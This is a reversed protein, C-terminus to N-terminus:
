RWANFVDTSISGSKWSQKKVEKPAPKRELPELKGALRNEKTVGRWYARLRESESVLDNTLKQHQEPSLHPNQHAIWQTFSSALVVPRKGAQRGLLPPIKTPSVSRFPGAAGVGILRALWSANSIGFRSQLVRLDITPGDGPQIPLLQREVARVLAATRKHNM